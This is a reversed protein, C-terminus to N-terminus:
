SGVFLIYIFRLKFNIKEQKEIQLYMCACTNTLEEKNCLLKGLMANKKVNSKESLSAKIDRWWYM